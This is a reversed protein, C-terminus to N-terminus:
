RADLDIYQARCMPCDHNDMLWQLICDVHYAHHCEENRSWAIDDGKRYDECCIPCCRPTYLSDEDVTDRVSIGMGDRLSRLSAVYVDDKKNV